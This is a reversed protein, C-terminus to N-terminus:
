KSRQGILSAPNGAVISGAEVNRTVVSGMGVVAGDGITVGDVISVNAGIWVDEGIVVGKSTVAQDKILSDADLGHNFAYICTNAAIRSNNGIVIGRSGGDMTVGRNISCNDGVRIPGQLFCDAAIHSGSGIDIDRGPEAFINAQPAIFCNNGLTITELTQLQQQIEDQWARAWQQHRPKLTFYLWPMYSLRLKHQDRYKDM